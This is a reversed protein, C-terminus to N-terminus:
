DDYLKNREAYEDATEHSTQKVSKKANFVIIPMDSDTDNIDEVGDYGMSELKKNIKNFLEKDDTYNLSIEKYASYPTYTKNKKQKKLMETVKYDGYEELMEDLVKKGSAIKLDKSTVYTDIFTNSFNWGYDGFWALYYKDGRSRGSNRVNDISLYKMALEKEAAQRKRDVSERSYSPDIKKRLEDDEYDISTVRTAKTGKKIVYDDGFKDDYDTGSLGLRKRGLDTLTGDPNQYRRIGWKMGLIGHHYLEDSSVIPKRM